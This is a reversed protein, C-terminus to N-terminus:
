HVVARAARRIRALAGPQAAAGVRDVDIQAPQGLKVDPLWSAAGAALNSFVFFPIITFGIEGPQTGLERLLMRQSEALVRHTRLVGKPRGTSGSTFTVLASADPPCDTWGTLPEYRAATALATVRPLAPGTTFAVPIMRLQPVFWRIVCAMPTGVFGRLRLHRTCSDVDARWAAPEVFVPTLGIRLAAAMIVYLLPSMPVFVLLADGPQLGQARFLAAMRRSRESVEAFSWTEETGNAGHVIAPELAHREVATDLLEIVNM